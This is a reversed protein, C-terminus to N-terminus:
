KSIKDYNDGGIEKHIKNRMEEEMKISDIYGYHKYSEPNVLVYMFRNDEILVRSGIELKEAVYVIKMLHEPFDLNLHTKPDIYGSLDYIKLATIVAHKVKLPDQIVNDKINTVDTIHRIM